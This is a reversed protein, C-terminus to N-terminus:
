PAAWSCEGVWWAFATAIPALWPGAAGWRAGSTRKKMHRNCAEMYFATTCPSWVLFLWLVAEGEHIFLPAVGRGRCCVQSACLVLYVIYCSSSSSWKWIKARQSLKPLSHPLFLSPSTGSNNAVEMQTSPAGQVCLLLFALFTPERKVQVKTFRTSNSTCLNM